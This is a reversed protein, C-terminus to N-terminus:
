MGLVYRSWETFSEVHLGLAFTMAVLALCSVRRNM